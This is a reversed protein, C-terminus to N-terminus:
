DFKGKLLPNNNKISSYVEKIKRDEIKPCHVEIGDFCPYQYTVALITEREEQLLYTVLRNEASQEAGFYEKNDQDFYSEWNKSPHYQEEPLQAKLNDFILRATSDILDELHINIRTMKSKKLM